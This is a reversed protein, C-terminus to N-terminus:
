TCFLALGLHRTIQLSQKNRPRGRHYITTASRIHKLGRRTRSFKAMKLFDNKKVRKERKRYKVPDHRRGHTTSKNEIVRFLDKMVM